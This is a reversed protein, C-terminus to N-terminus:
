GNIQCEIQKFMTNCLMPTVTFDDTDDIPDGNERFIQLDGEMMTVPMMLYETSQSAIKFEIPSDDSIPIESLIEQTKGKEMHMESQPNSFIDFMDNELEQEDQLLSGMGQKGGSM